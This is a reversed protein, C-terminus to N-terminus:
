KMSDRANGGRRNKVGHYKIRAVHSYLSGMRTALGPIGCSAKPMRM